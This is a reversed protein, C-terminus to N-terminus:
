WRLSSQPTHLVSKAVASYIVWQQFGCAKCTLHQCSLMPHSCQTRPKKLSTWNDWSMFSMQMHCHTLNVKEPLLSFHLCNCLGWLSSSLPMSIRRTSLLGQLLADMGSPTLSGLRYHGVQLPKQPSLSDGASITADGAGLSCLCVQRQTHEPSLSHTCIWTGLWPQEELCPHIQISLQQWYHHTDKTGRHLIARLHSPNNGTNTVCCLSAKTGGAQYSLLTTTQPLFALISM